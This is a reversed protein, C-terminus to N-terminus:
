LLPKLIMTFSRILAETVITLHNCRKENQGTTWSKRTVQGQDFVLEVM